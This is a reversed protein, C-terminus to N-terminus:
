KTVLKGILPNVLHIGKPIAVLSLIIRTSILPNVFHIGKLPPAEGLMACYSFSISSHILRYKCM